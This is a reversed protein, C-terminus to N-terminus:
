FKVHVGAYLQTGNDYVARVQTPNTAYYKLLSNTINLADLTFSINRTVNVNLSADLQGFGAEQEPTARDLGVFYHSRYTYALRVSFAKVEYYGVLNATVNSAGVLPGGSSDSASLYTMNAQFGFNYPLPQQVQLEVGKVEGSSNIPASIAYSEYDLVDPKGPVGITSRQQDLFTENTVGYAVYNSLDDYFVSVEAVATPMYYWELAADYVGATIPRLNPNGGNGSLTLDTLTVSAGLASYDPRAMTEAASVRLLLNKQLDFSFNLSPLIDLYDHHVNDVLYNGYASTTIAGPGSGPVNVYSNQNTDVIRVGFNGRWGDGGVRAMVYGSTDQERVKFSGMWYYNQATVISSLPGHVGDAISNLTNAVSAPNAAIPILLGPIGLAGANFGGPYAAPNEASLPMTPSTWCAGDAGLTCGRDWGDVQRTHQSVHVGFDVDKFVGDGIDWQGDVQGYIEKDAARFEENWAWDNALGTPSSPNINTPTVLWGNGSPAYSVGTGADSEFSPSGNTNGQGQTYGIQAKLTLHDTARFKGKLNIYSTYASSGPRDIADVIIGDVVTGGYGGMAPTPTFATIPAVQPWVASTLTNHAVTYSTPLNKTLENAGWYMYNDNVNAADLHSYFGDLDIEVRDGSRWAVDFHGGERKREQEFLTSGILGPAQVGVLEPHEAGLPDTASITSYSLTEQGYRRLSRDEYFGQISVGFSDDANKWGLTANVQPKWGDTLSNYAGEVSGQFVFQKGAGGLSLANPTILDVAGSVGGELLSADQTKYVVTSDVMEAPLLNFSVSRGVASYQDLIFWDGTAINHGDVTVQTLSPSTGRISVRDNEDFGGEGSAASETNVGPIRQLADAVNKDPLKGIDTASIADVQDVADRKVTIARQLSERIGTVVVESVASASNNDTATTTTTATDAFAPAAACLIAAISTSGLLIPKRFTM